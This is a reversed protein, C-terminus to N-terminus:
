LLLYPQELGDKVEVLFSAAQVGDLSRHDVSLTLSMIPRVGVTDDPLVTPVKIIRGVALIASEPPNVIATFREIGFMGLNSITFTGGSLDDGTLRRAAAREQLRRLEGHIEPLSRRDADRIVPVVLGDEGALAVGVNIHEHVQVRGDAYSANVRPHRKLAAAIAKVLIATVSIREGSQALNHAAQAQRLALANTMDVSVGLAFHPVSHWSEALRQGTIRQVRSLELTSGGGEARPVTPASLAAYAQVDDKVVRGGPGTGAVQAVDIGLDEAVRQALPTSGPVREPPRAEQQQQGHYARVDEVKIRGEPGTGAVQSLDIGLEKALARAAPAARVKDPEAPVARSALPGVSAAQNGAPGGQGVLPPLRPVEEGPGAIFAITEGVPVRAGPGVGARIGKLIGAAPAECEAVVKDTTIELIPQRAEVREGEQALWRIVEGAEMHDSMKPMYVQTAMQTM